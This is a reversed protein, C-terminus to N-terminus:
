MRSFSFSGNTSDKVVDGDFRDVANQITRERYHDGEEEWKSMGSAWMVQNIEDADFGHNLMKMSFAFEAESRSNYDSIDGEFLRRFLPEKKCLSKIRTMVDTSADEPTVEVADPTKTDTKSDKSNNEFMDDPVDVQEPQIVGAEDLGPQHIIGCLRGTKSKIGRTGPVKMVRPIDSVDDQGFEVFDPAKDRITQAYSSEMSRKTLYKTRIHSMEYMTDQNVDFNVKYHMHIGNESMVILPWVGYEENMFKAQALGYKYCWWVEEKSAGSYSDRETEIDFSLHNVSNIHETKGRGGGPEENLTNVGSYIHYRWMGSYQNCFKKFETYSNAHVWHGSGM